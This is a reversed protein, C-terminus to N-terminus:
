DNNVVTHGLSAGGTKHANRVIKTFLIFKMNQVNINSRIHMHQRQWILILKHVINRSPLLHFRGQIM